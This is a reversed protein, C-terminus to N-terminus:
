PIVLSMTRGFDVLYQHVKGKIPEYQYKRAWDVEQARVGLIYCTSVLTKTGGTQWIGYEACVSRVDDQLIM